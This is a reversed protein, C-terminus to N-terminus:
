DLFGFISISFFNKGLYPLVPVGSEKDKTLTDRYTKWNKQADFLVQFSKMKATFRKPIKMGKLIRAVTWMSLGGIIEM